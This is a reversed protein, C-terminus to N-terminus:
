GETVYRIVEEVTMDALGIKDLTLGTKWYDTKFIAELLGIVGTYIPTPVGAVRALSVFPIMAFPVDMRLWRFGEDIPYPPVNKFFAGNREVETLTEGKGGYFRKMMDKFPTYPVGYAKCVGIRERDLAESVIGTNETIGSGYFSFETEGQEKLRDIEAINLLIVGAHGIMNINEFNSHLVNKALEFTPFLKKIVEFAKSSKSAPFVSLPIGNRMHSIDLNGDMGRAVHVPAPCETIMVNDKGAEKLINRIRLSPWYGYYSFHLIAGDKIYAAVPKMRTEFDHVPVDIFVVDADKLAKEPDTTVMNVEAFGTKGSALARSNGSVNFGGLKKIPELKESYEPLDFVNVKYGALSLDAAIAFALNPLENGYTAILPKM